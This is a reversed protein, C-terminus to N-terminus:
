RNQDLCSTAMLRGNVNMGIMMYEGEVLLRKWDRLMEGPKRELKVLPMAKRAGM